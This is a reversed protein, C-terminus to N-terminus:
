EPSRNFMTAYRYYAKELFVRKGGIYPNHVSIDIESLKKNAHKIVGRHLMDNKRFEHPFWLFMDIIKRNNMPMTVTHRFIDHSTVVGQGWFGFVFEWTHFDVHEYNYLPKELNIEEMYEKYYGDTKRLLRPAFMYRTQFISFHRPTLKEPFKMGYRKERIARGIESIWSKLEVDFDNLRYLFIYKRIENEHPIAIYSINHCIIKRLIEYDKVQANTDPIPYIRHEVGMKECIEHAAGADIVESPKSHFSFCKVRDYLGNACAFTTRSDTGGSLSILPRRWKMASLEINNRILGAITKMAQDYSGPTLEPHPKVPYFRRVSFQTGFELCTNCGLKRFEKYPSLSCPLIQWGYRFFWKGTLEKVFPDIDLGCIDGAMRPHSVLYIDKGQKGYYCARMGACDQLALLNGKDNLLIVHIGTLESVKDFFVARGKRYAKICDHLIDPESYKMDFPNYAHGILAAKVGELEVINCSQWKHCYISVESGDLLKGFPAIKWQGYFPYGDTNEFVRSTVLYGRCFLAERYEPYKVLIERIEDAKNKEM